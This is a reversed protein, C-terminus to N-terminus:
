GLRLPWDLKVCADESYMLIQLGELSLSLKIRRMKEFFYFDVKCM